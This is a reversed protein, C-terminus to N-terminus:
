TVDILALLAVYGISKIRFLIVNTLQNTLYYLKDSTM